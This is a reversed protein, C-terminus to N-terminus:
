ISLVIDEKQLILQFENKEIYWNKNEIYVSIYDEEKRPHDLMKEKVAKLINQVQEEKLKIDYVLIYGKLPDIEYYWDLYYTFLTNDKTIVLFYENEQEIRKLLQNEEKFKKEQEIVGYSVTLQRPASYLKDFKEKQEERYMYYIFIALCVLLLCFILVYTLARRRKKTTEKDM